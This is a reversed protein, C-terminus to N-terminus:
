KNREDTVGDPATAMSVHSAAQMGKLGVFPAPVALFRSTYRFRAEGVM